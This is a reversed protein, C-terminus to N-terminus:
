LKIKDYDTQFVVIQAFWAVKPWWFRLNLPAPPPSDRASPSKQVKNTFYHMKSM